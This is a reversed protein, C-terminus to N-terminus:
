GRHHPPVDQVLRREEATLARPAAPAAHEGLLGLSLQLQQVAAHLRASGVRYRLEDPVPHPWVGGQAIVARAHAAIAARDWGAEALAAHVDGGSSGGPRGTMAVVLAQALEAASM